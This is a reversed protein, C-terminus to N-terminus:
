AFGKHSLAFLTRLASSCQADSPLATVVLCGMPSCIGRWLLMCLKRNPDQSTILIM